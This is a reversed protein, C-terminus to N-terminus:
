LLIIRNAELGLDHLPFHKMAVLGMVIHSKMTAWVDELPDTFVSCLSCSGSGSSDQACEYCSLDDEENQRKFKPSDQSGTDLMSKRGPHGASHKIIPQQGSQKHLSSQYLISGRKKPKKQVCVPEAAFVRSRKAVRRTSVM